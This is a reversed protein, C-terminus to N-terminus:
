EFKIEFDVCELIKLHNIGTAATPKTVKTPKPLPLKTVDLNLEKSFKEVIFKREDDDAMAVRMRQLEIQLEQRRQLLMLSDKEAASEHVKDADMKLLLLVDIPDNEATNYYDFLSAIKVKDLGTGIKNMDGLGRIKKKKLNKMEEDFKQLKMESEFIKAENDDILEVKKYENLLKEMYPQFIPNKLMGPMEKKLIVTHQTLIGEELEEFAGGVDPDTGGMENYYVKIDMIDYLLNIYKMLEKSVFERNVIERPRNMFPNHPDPQSTM